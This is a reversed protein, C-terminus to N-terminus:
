RRSRDADLAAFAGRRVAGLLKQHLSRRRMRYDRVETRFRMGLSSRIQEATKELLVFDFVQRKTLAFYPLRLDGYANLKLADHHISPEASHYSEGHYDVLVVREGCFFALDCEAFPDNQGFRSTLAGEHLWLPLRVRCNLVPKPLAFGGYRAPLSLLLAVASEMPSRSREVVHRLAGRARRTGCLYPAREIFSGISERTAIPLRAPIASEERGIRQGAPASREGLVPSVAHIGCFQMGLWALLPTELVSAMQVFTLEPSCVTLGNQLQAVSRAPLAQECSHVRVGIRKRRDGQRSVLFHVPDGLFGMDRACELFERSPPEFRPSGAACASTALSGFCHGGELRTGAHGDDPTLDSAGDQRLMRFVGPAGYALWFRAASIHSLPADM